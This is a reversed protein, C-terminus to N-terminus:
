LILPKQRQSPHWNYKDELSRYIDEIEIDDSKDLEEIVSDWYGQPAQNHYSFIDDPTVGMTIMKTAALDVVMDESYLMEEMNKRQPSTIDSEPYFNNEDFTQSHMHDNSPYLSQKDEKVEYPDPNINTDIAKQAECSFKVFDSPFIKGTIGSDTIMRLISNYKEENMESITCLYSYEYEGINIVDSPDLGLEFLIEQKREMLNDKESYVHIFSSIRSSEELAKSRFNSNSFVQVLRKYDSEDGMVPRMVSASQVLSFIKYYEADYYDVLANELEVKDDVPISPSDVPRRTITKWLGLVKDTMSSQRNYSDLTKSSRSTSSDEVASNFYIGNLADRM